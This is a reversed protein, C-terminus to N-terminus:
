PIIVDLGVPYQVDCVTVTRNRLRCLPSKIIEGTTKKKETILTKTILSM